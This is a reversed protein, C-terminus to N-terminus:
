SAASLRFERAGGCGASAGPRSCISLPAYHIGRAGRREHVAACWVSDLGRLFAICHSTCDPSPQHRCRYDPIGGGGGSTRVNRVVCRVSPRVLRALRIESAVASKQSGFPKRGYREALPETSPPPRALKGSSRDLLGTRACFCYSLQREKRAM